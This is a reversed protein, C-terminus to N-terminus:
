GVVFHPLDVATQPPEPVLDVAFPERRQREVAPHLDDRLDVTAGAV